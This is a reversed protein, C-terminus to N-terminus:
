LTKRRIEPTKTEEVVSNSHLGKKTKREKPSASPDASM